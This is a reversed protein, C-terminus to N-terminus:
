KLCHANHVCLCVHSCWVVKYSPGGFELYNDMEIIKTKIMPEKHKENWCLAIYKSGGANSDGDGDGGHDDDDGFCLILQYVVASIFNSRKKQLVCRCFIVFVLNEKELPFTQQSHVNSWPM